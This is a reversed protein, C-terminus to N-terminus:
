EGRARRRAVEREGEVFANPDAGYKGSNALAWADERTMAHLPRALREEKTPEPPAPPHQSNWYRQYLNMEAAYDAECRALRRIADKATDSIGYPDDRKASHLDALAQAYEAKIDELDAKGVEVYWDNQESM